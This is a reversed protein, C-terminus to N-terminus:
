EEASNAEYYVRANVVLVPGTLLDDIVHVGVVYDIGHGLGLGVTVDRPGSLRQGILHSLEGNALEALFGLRREAGLEVDFGKVIFDQVAAGHWEVQELFTDM